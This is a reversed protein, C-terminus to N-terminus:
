GTKNVISKKRRQYILYDFINESAGTAKSMVRQGTFLTSIASFGDTLEKFMLRFLNQRPKM